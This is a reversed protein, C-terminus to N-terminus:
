DTNGTAGNGAMGLMHYFVLLVIGIVGAVAVFSLGQFALRMWEWYPSPVLMATIAISMVMSQKRLKAKQKSNSNTLPNENADLTFSLAKYLGFQLTVAIAIFPAVLEAVLESQSDYEPVSLGSDQFGSNGSNYYFSM